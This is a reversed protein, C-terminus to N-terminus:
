DGGAFCLLAWPSWPPNPVPFCLVSCLVLLAEVAAAGGCSPAGPGVGSCSCLVSLWATLLELCGQNRGNSMGLVLSRQKEQHRNGPDRGRNRHITKRLPSFPSDAGGHSTPLRCVNAGSLSNLQKKSSRPMACGLHCCCCGCSMLRSGCGRTCDRSFVM